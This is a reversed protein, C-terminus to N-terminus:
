AVMRQDDQPMDNGWSLLEDSKKLGARVEAAMFDLDDRSMGAAETIKQLSVDARLGRICPGNLRQALMDAVHVLRAADAYELACGPSHHWGIAETLIEPLEWHEALQKGVTAHNTGLIKQEVDIMSKGEDHCTKIVALFGGPLARAIALKGIDHLLGAVFATEDRRKRGSAKFEAMVEAAIACIVSHRWVSHWDLLPFARWPLLADVVSASAALNRVYEYGLTLIAESVTDVPKKRRFYASNALRLVKSTLAQDTMVADALRENNANPDCALRMICALTVPMSPLDIDYSSPGFM